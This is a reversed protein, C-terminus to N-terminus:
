RGGPLPASTYTKLPGTGVRPGAVLGPAGEELRGIALIARRSGRGRFRRALVEAPDPHGRKWIELPGVDHDALM